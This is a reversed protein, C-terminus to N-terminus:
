LVKNIILLILTLIIKFFTKPKKLRFMKRKLNLKHYVKLGKIVNKYKIKIQRNM